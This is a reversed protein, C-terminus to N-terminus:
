KCLGVQTREAGSLGLYIRYSFWRGGVHWTVSGRQGQSTRLATSFGDCRGDFRLWITTTVVACFCQLNLFPAGVSSITTTPPRKRACVIAAAAPCRMIQTYSMARRRPGAAAPSSSVAVKNFRDRDIGIPKSSRNFWRTDARVAPATCAGYWVCLSVRGCVICSTWDARGGRRRYKPM